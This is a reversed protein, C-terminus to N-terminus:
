NQNLFSAGFQRDVEAKFYINQSLSRVSILRCSNDQTQSIPVKELLEDENM